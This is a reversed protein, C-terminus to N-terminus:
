ETASAIAFAYKFHPLNKTYLNQCVNCSFEAIFGLTQYSYEQQTADARQPSLFLEDWYFYISIKEILIYDTGELKIMRIISNIPLLQVM